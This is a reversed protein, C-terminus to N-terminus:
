QPAHTRSLETIRDATPRVLSTVTVRDNQPRLTFKGETTDAWGHTWEAEEQECVATVQCGLPPTPSYQYTPVVSFDAQLMPAFFDFTASDALEPRDSLNEECWRRFEEKSYTHVPDADGPLSDPSRQHGVVLGFPCHGAHTSLLRAAEFATLAGACLGVLLHPRDDDAVLSFLDDTIDDLQASVTGVPPESHRSERGPLRVARVEALEKLGSRFSRWAAAGSGAEGFAYVVAPAGPATGIGHFTSGKTL